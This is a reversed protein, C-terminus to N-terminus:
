PRAGTEPQLSARGPALAVARMVKCGIRLRVDLPSGIVAPGLAVAELRAEVVATSEEVILREGAHIVRRLEQRSPASGAKDQQAQNRTSEVAVLRGPGGPHSPDRMLLWRNGTHPDDIERVIEGSAQTMGSANASLLMVRPGPDIGATQGHAAPLAALALLAARLRM